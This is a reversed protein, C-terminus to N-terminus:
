REPPLDLPVLRQAKRERAAWSQSHRLSIILLASLVAVGAIICLSGVPAPVGHGEGWVAVGILPGALGIGAAVITFGKWHIPTGGGAFARQFWVERGARNLLKAMPSNEVVLKVLPNLFPWEM